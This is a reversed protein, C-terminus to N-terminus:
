ARSGTARPDRLAELSPAAGLMDLKRAAVTAIAGGGRRAAARRLFFRRTGADAFGQIM